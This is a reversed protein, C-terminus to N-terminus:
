PNEFLVFYFKRIKLRFLIFFCKRSTHFFTQGVVIETVHAPSCFCFNKNSHGYTDMLAGFIDATIHGNMSCCYQKNYVVIFIWQKSHTLDSITVSLEAQETITIGHSTKHRYLILM